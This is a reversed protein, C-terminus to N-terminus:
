PSFANEIVEIRGRGDTLAVEFRLPALLGGPQGDLFEEAACLIREVQRVTVREALHSLDRGKKVEVFVYEAGRRLILDIEGGLGRWRRAVLEHGDRLYRDAVVNEAAVGEHYARRGRLARTM